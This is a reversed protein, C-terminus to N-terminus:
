RDADVSFRLAGAAGARAGVGLPRRLVVHDHQHRHQRQYRHDGDDGREGDEAAQALRM